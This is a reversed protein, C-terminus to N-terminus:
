RYRGKGTKEIEKFLTGTKGQFEKLPFLDEGGHSFPSHGVDHLLAVLRIKQRERELGAREYKYVSTLLDYSHSVISDFLLSAVHM